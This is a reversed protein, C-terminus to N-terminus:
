FLPKTPYIPVEAKHAYSETPRLYGRAVPEASQPRKYERKIEPEPLEEYYEGDERYGKLDLGSM